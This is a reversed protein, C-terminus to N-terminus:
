SLLNRRFVDSGVSHSDLCLPKPLGTGNHKDFRGPVFKPCACSNNVAFSKLALCKTQSQLKQSAFLCPNRLLEDSRTRNLLAASGEQCGATYSGILRAEPLRSKGIVQKFLVDLLRHLLSPDPDGYTISMLATQQDGAEPDPDHAM